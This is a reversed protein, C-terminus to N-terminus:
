VTSLDAGAAEAFAVRRYEGACPNGTMVWLTSGGGVALEAVMSSTTSEVGEVHM